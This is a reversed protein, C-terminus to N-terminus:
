DKFQIVSVKGNEEIFAAKVERVEAVGHERLQSMLEADTLLERRMNKRILNGNKIICTPPAAIIREFFKSRAELWNVFYNCLILTLAITLAETISQYEGAMGNQVADAILVVLLMDSAAMDGSQRKLIIRFLVFLGFYVCVGRVVIELLSGSPIFLRTWDVEWM